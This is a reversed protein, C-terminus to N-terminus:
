FYRLWGKEPHAAKYRGYWRCLPYLAIVVGLWVAYVGALPLGFGTAPRGFQFPAFNLDKPSFGQLFAILLLILHILYLHVIFYFLPTRGYVLLVRTVATGRQEAAPDRQEAAALILFLIGLTVLSFLLSPPYKSVNLFSLVTFVANKQVSWHDPDGYIKIFRLLLFLGLAALGLRLFLKKRQGAPRQFWQGAVFGALMIGLWPLVPYAIVFLLNPTLPFANPSLFLARIFRATMTLAGPPTIDAAMQSSPTLLDHGLFLLLTLVLLIKLPLRSLFSLFILGMGITAIVEFILLRFHLDFSLAFNVITFEILVLIIGRRLLFRRAAPLNKGGIPGPATSPSIAASSLSLAASAGSLFVFAPACLHTIWRTFFLVPTTTALNTPSQALADVHLYDRTHDLAMIIMVLGRAIDISPLRKMSQLLNVEIYAPQDPESVSIRRNSLKEVFPRIADVISM